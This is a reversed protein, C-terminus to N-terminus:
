RARSALGAWQVYDVCGSGCPSGLTGGRIPHQVGQLRERGSQQMRRQQRELLRLRRVNRVGHRPNRRQDRRLQQLREAGPQCFCGRLLWWQVFSVRRDPLQRQLRPTRPRTLYHRTDALRRSATTPRMDGSSLCSPGPRRVHRVTARRAPRRRVPTAPTDQSVDGGSAQLALMRRQMEHTPVARTAALSHSAIIARRSTPRPLGDLRVCGAPGRWATIAEGQLRRVGPATRAANLMTVATTPSTRAPRRRLLWHPCNIPTCKDTCQGGTARRRHRARRRVFCWRAGCGASTEDTRCQARELRLLQERLDRRRLVQASRGRGTASGAPHSGDGRRWRARLGSAQKGEGSVGQESTADAGGDDAEPVDHLGLFRAARGWRRPSRWRGGRDRGRELRWRGVSRGRCAPAAPTARSRRLPPSRSSRGQEDLTTVGRPTSARPATLWLVAGAAIRLRQRRHARDYPRDGLEFRQRSREDGTRPAALYDSPTSCETKSTTGARSRWSARVRGGQGWERSRRTAAAVLAYTKQNSWRSTGADAGPTSAAFPTTVVPAPVETAPGPAPLVGIVIPERRDRDGERLIFKREIPPQGTAAFVFTHEGPDAAIATGQQGEVPRGDM